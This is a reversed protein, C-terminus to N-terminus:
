KPEIPGLEPFLLRLIWVSLVLGLGIQFWMPNRISQIKSPRFVYIFFSILLPFAFPNFFLAQHFRGQGIAIIGRFIGCGPCPMDFIIYFLCISQKPLFQLLDVDFGGLLLGNFAVFSLLGACLLRLINQSSVRKFRRGLSELSNQKFSALM